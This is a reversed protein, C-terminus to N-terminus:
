DKHQQLIQIVSDIASNRVSPDKLFDETFHALLEDAVELIKSTHLLAIESKFSSFLNDFM